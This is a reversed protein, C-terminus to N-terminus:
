WRLSLEVSPRQRQHFSTTVCPSKALEIRFEVKFDGVRFRLTKDRILGIFGM